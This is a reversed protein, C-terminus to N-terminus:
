DILNLMFYFIETYPFTKFTEGLRYKITSKNKSKVTTALKQTPGDVCDYGVDFSKNESCKIIRLLSQVADHYLIDKNNMELEVEVTILSMLGPAKNKPTNEFTQTVVKFKYDDYVSHDIKIEDQPEVIFKGILKEAITITATIRNNSHHNFVVITYEENEKINVTYLGGSYQVNDLTTNPSIIKVESDIKNFLM